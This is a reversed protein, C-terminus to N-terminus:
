DAGRCSLVAPITLLLIKLDLLLSWQDIYELDLTIWKEFGINSRGKIQWLCTLGPRVSFRRMLWPEEFLGVDRVSMPRPGVLSMQGILVNWLQPLEDLSTRRLFHGPRTLRPDHRIKFVPGAVENRNELQCQLLEADAVMTRFKYMRFRRKMYGYREQVFLVPGASTLKVILAVALMVPALVMLLMLSGAVDILRKVMRSSERPDVLLSLFPTTVRGDLLSSGVTDRFLDAPYKAPVGVRTCAALTRHIAEYCSKIPLGIIVHDVVRNMLIREIDEEAGLHVPGSNRLAAHPESDVFGVIENAQLPDAQLERYMRAAIPGSGVIVIQRQRNGQRARHAARITGRLAATSLLVAVGFVFVHQPRFAGSRSLLPFVMALTVGIASALLLRPWDDRGSRLRAPSYLGCVSLVYPWVLGFATLLLVNKISVRIALLAEFRNPIRPGDLNGAIVVGALISVALLADVVRWWPAPMSVPRPSPGLVDPPQGLVLGQRERVGATM